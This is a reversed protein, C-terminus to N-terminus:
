RSPARRERRPGAHDSTARPLAIPASRNPCTLKSRRNVSPPISPIRGANPTLSLPPVATWSLCRRGRAAPAAPLHQARGPPRAPPSAPPAQSFAQPAKTM